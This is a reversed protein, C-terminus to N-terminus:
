DYGIHFRLLLEVNGAAENFVTWLLPTKDDTDVAAALEPDQTSAAELLLAMIPTSDPQAAAFHMMTYGSSDTVGLDTGYELCTALMEPNRTAVAWFAPARRERDLVNCINHDHGHHLMLTVVEVVGLCVAFGLPTKGTVDTYAIHDATFDPSTMFAEIPALDNQLIADLVTLHLPALQFHDWAQPAGCDCCLSLM